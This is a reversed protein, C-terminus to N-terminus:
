PRTVIIGIAAILPSAIAALMLLFAKTSSLAGFLGQRAADRRVHDEEIVEIREVLRQQTSQTDSVFQKYQDMMLKGQPTQVDGSILGEIRAIFADVKSEVAHIGKDLSTFRLENLKEVHEAQLKVSAIDAAVTRVQLALDEHRNEMRDMRRSLDAYTGARPPTTLDDSDAM